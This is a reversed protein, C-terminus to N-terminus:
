LYYNILSFVTPKVILPLLKDPQFYELDILKEPAISISQRRSIGKISPKKLEPNNM